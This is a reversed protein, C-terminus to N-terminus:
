GIDIGNFIVGAVETYSFQKIDAIAHLDARSEDDAQDLLIDLTEIDLLVLHGCRM